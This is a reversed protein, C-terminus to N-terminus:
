FIPPYTERSSNISAETVKAEQSKAAVEGATVKANELNEILEVDEVVNGEAKSLKYLLAAELEKLQKTFDNQQRILEARKEELDPREM